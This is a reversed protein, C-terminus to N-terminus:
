DLSSVPAVRRALTRALEHIDNGFLIWGRRTATKGPLLEGYWPGSHLSHHDDSNPMAQVAQEYGLVVAKTGDRSVAGVLAPTEIATNTQGWFWEFAREPQAPEAVYMCRIPNTRPIRAMSTMAGNQLI